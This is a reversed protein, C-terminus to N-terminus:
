LFWSPKLQPNFNPPLSSSSNPAPEYVEIERQFTTQSYALSYYLRYRGEKLFELPLFVGLPLEPTFFVEEQSPLTVLSLNLMESSSVNKIHTPKKLAVRCPEHVKNLDDLLLTSVNCGTEEPIQGELALIAIWSRFGIWDPDHDFPLIWNRNGPRIRGTM